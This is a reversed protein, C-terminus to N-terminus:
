PNLKFIKFTELVTEGNSKLNVSQEMYLSDGIKLDSLAIETDSNQLRHYVSVRSLEAETLLAGSHNDGETLLDILLAYEQNDTWTFPEAKLDSLVGEYHKILTAKKYLGRGLATKTRDLYRAAGTNDVFSFYGPVLDNPSKQGFVLYLEIGVVILLIVSLLVLLGRTKNM